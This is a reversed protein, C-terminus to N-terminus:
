LELSLPEVSAVPVHWPDAASGAGAVPDTAGLLAALEALMAAWSHSPDTLRARHVRALERTPGTLLAVPDALPAGPGGAPPPLAPLAPRAAGGPAGRARRWRPRRGPGGARRRRRGGARQRGPRPRHPRLQPGRVHGRRAGAAPAARRRGVAARGPRLRRAARR